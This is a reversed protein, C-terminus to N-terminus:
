RSAGFSGSIMDRFFVGGVEDHNPGYFRGQIGADGFVGSDDIPLGSWDISPRTNGTSTYEIDTITVDIAPVSFDPIELEASGEVPQSINDTASVDVGVMIGYWSAEGSVPRSNSATGIM